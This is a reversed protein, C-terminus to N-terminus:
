ALTVGTSILVVFAGAYILREASGFLTQLAPVRRSLVTAACGALLLWSSWQLTHAYDSAHLGHAREYRGVTEHLQFAATTISIFAVLALAIHWTGARTRGRGRLDMPFWSILARSLGFLALSVVADGPQGGSRFAQAIAVAAALGAVGLGLTLVRYGSRYRTVGYRSVAAHVPSLGTPLLHLVVFAGLAVGTALLVVVAVVHTIAMDM